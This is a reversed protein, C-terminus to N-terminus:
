AASVPIFRLRKGSPDRPLMADIEADTVRETLRKRLVSANNQNISLAAMIAALTLRRGQARECLELRLLDRQRPTLSMM